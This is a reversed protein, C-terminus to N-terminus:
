ALEAFLKLYDDVIRDAVTYNEFEDSNEIDFDVVGTVIKGGMVQLLVDDM